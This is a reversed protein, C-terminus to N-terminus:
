FIFFNTQFLGIVTSVGHNPMKDTVFRHSARIADKVRENMWKKANKLELGNKIETQDKYEEVITSLQGALAIRELYEELKVKPTSNDEMRCLRMTYDTFIPKLISIMFERGEDELYIELLQHSIERLLYAFNELSSM